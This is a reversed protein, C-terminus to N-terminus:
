KRMEERTVRSEARLEDRTLVRRTSPGCRENTAVLDGSLVGEVAAWANVLKRFGKGNHTVVVRGPHEPDAAHYPYNATPHGCHRVEWGSAEHRWRAACKNGPPSLRTWGPRGGRDVPAPETAPAAPKGVVVVGVLGDPLAHVGAVKAAAETFLDSVTKPYQGTLRKWGERQEEDTPEPDFDQQIEVEQRYTVLDGDVTVSPDCRYLDRGLKAPEGQLTGDNVMALVFAEGAAQEGKFTRLEAATAAADSARVTVTVVGIWARKWTGREPSPEFREYIRGDHTITTPRPLNM